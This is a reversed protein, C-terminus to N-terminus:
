AQACTSSEFVGLFDYTKSREKFSIINLRVMTSLQCISEKVILLVVKIFDQLIQRFKRSHKTKIRRFAVNKGLIM